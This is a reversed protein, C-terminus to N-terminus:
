IINKQFIETRICIIDSQYNKWKFINEKDIGIVRRKYLLVILIDLNVLGAECIKFGICWFEKEYIEESEIFGLYTNIKDQLLLIYENSIIHKCTTTYCIFIRFLFTICFKHLFEVFSYHVM